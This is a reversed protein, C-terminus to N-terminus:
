ARPNADLGAASRLLLAALQSQHSTGTKAFIAKLHDRVTHVSIRLIAAVEAQTRGDALKAAVAAQAPTLGFLDQLIAAAVTPIEPDRIFILAAPLPAGFGTTRPRFPAVLLTLPLRGEGRRIAIGGGASAPARGAATDAVSRILFALRAAVRRDLGTLRGQAVGLGAGQRLLAEALRNAFLILGNRDVAMTATGTCELGALSAQHGLGAEAFRLTLQMARSVHPILSEIRKRDAEEMGPRNKARHIGIVGIKGDGLAVAAGAVDHVGITVAFENVFSSKELWGGPVTERALITKGLHALGSAVWLDQVYHHARYDDWWRESFNETAGLFQTEGARVDVIQLLCSESGFLGALKPALPQWTSPDAAADYLDGVFDLLRGEAQDNRAM